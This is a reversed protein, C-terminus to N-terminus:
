DDGLFRSEQESYFAASQQTLWPDAEVVISVKQRMDEYHVLFKKVSEADLYLTRIPAGADQRDLIFQHLVDFDDDLARLAVGDLQPWRPVVSNTLCQLMLSWDFSPLVLTNIGPFCFEARDFVSEIMETFTSRLTLTLSKLKPFRPSRKHMIDEELLVLDGRTYPAISIEELDPASISLLLESIPIMTGYIHIRRLFPMDYVHSPALNFVLADYVVLTILSASCSQIITCFAAYSLPFGVPALHLETVNTLPVRFYHLGMGRLRVDTLMPTDRLALVDHDAEAM